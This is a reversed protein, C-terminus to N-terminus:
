AEGKFDNMNPVFTKGGTQQQQQKAAEEEPLVIPGFKEEYRLINEHLLYTLRKVHEPTMIIRSQIKPGPFGPLISAFDLTFESPSSMVLALNAYVGNSVAESLAVQAQNNQNQKENEM